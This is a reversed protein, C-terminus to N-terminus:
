WGLGISLIFSSIDFQKKLLVPSEKKFLVETILTWKLKGDGSVISEAGIGGFYGLSSAQDSYPISTLTTSKSLSLFHYALTGGGTFYVNVGRNKREIPFLAVGIETAASYYTFNSTVETSGDFFIQRGSLNSFSFAFFPVIYKGDKFVTVSGGVGATSEAFSTGKDGSYLLQRVGTRTRPYAGANAASAM